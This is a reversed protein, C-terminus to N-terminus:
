SRFSRYYERLLEAATLLRNAYGGGGFCCPEFYIVAGNNNNAGVYCSKNTPPAGAYAFDTAVTNVVHRGATGGDCGLALFQWANLASNAGMAIISSGVAVSLAPAAGSPHYIEFRTPVADQMGFPVGFTATDATRYFWGWMTFAGVVTPGVAYQTAGDFQLCAGTIGQAAAAATNLYTPRIGAAGPQTLATGGTIISDQQTVISNRAFVANDFDVFNGAVSQKYLRNTLSATYRNKVTYQTWAAPNVNDVAFGDSWFGGLATGDTKISITGTIRINATNAQSAYGQAGALTVRLCQTGGVGGGPIKSLGAGLGGTWAAVGAAEMDGDVFLNAGTYAFDQYPTLTGSVAPDWYGLTGDPLRFCELGSFKGAWRWDQGAVGTGRLRITSGSADVTVALAASVGAPDLEEKGTAANTGLARVTAVGNDCSVLVSNRYSYVSTPVGSREAVLEATLTGHFSSPVVISAVTITTAANTSQQDAGLPLSPM